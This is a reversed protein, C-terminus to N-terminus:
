QRPSASYTAPDSAWRLYETRLGSAPVGLKRTVTTGEYTAAVTYAGAPLNALFVPGESVAKIVPQGKGDTITVGVDAVYNGEIVTFVLKTNYQGELAKMRALDTDGVGGSAYPVAAGAPSATQAQTFATAGALAVAALVRLLAQHSM